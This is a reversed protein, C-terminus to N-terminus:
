SCHFAADLINGIHYAIGLVIHAIRFFTDATEALEAARCALRDIGILECVLKRIICGAGVIHFPCEM